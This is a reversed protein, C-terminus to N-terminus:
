LSDMPTRQHYYYHRHAKEFHGPAIYLREVDFHCDGNAHLLARSILNM